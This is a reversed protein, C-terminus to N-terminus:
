SVRRPPMLWTTLPSVSVKEGASPANNISSKGMWPTNATSITVAAVAMNSSTKRTFTGWGFVAGVVCLTVGLDSSASTFDPNSYMMVQGPNNITISIALEILKSRAGTPLKIGRSIVSYKLPPALSSAQICAAMPM